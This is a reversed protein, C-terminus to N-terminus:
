KMLGELVGAPTVKLLLTVGVSPRATMPEGPKREAFNVQLEQSNAPIYSSQPAIRDGVFFANTTKYGEATRIAVVAYFFTGSGGTDQTVLFATDDVGDGSLDGEATNGFYRTTIKSASGPTAPVEFVGNVLSIPKGDITFTANKGDFAAGSREPAEAPKVALLAIGAAVAVLVIVLGILSTKNM